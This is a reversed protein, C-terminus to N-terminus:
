VVILLLLEVVHEKALPKDLLGDRLAPESDLGAGEQAGGAATNNALRRSLFEREFGDGGLLLGFGWSGFVRPGVTAWKVKARSVVRSPM